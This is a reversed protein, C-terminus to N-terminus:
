LSIQEKSSNKYKFHIIYSWARERHYFASYISKKNFKIWLNLIWYIKMIDFSFLRYKWLTFLWTQYNTKGYWCILAIQMYMFIHIIYYQIICWGWQNLNPVHINLIFIEYVLSKWNGNFNFYLGASCTSFMFLNHDKVFYLYKFYFFFM